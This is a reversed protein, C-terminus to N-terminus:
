DEWVLADAPGDESRGDDHLRFSLNEERRKAHM